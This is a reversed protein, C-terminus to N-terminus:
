ALSMTRYKPGHKLMKHFGLVHSDFYYLKGNLSGYNESLYTDSCLENEGIKLVKAAKTRLVSMDRKLCGYLDAPYLQPMVSIITIVDMEDKGIIFQTDPHYFGANALNQYQGAVHEAEQIGQKKNVFGLSFEHERGYLESLIKVYYPKEKIKFNGSVVKELCLNDNITPIKM